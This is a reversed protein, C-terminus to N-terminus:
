VVDEMHENVEEILPFLSSTRFRYDGSENQIHTHPINTRGPAEVPEGTYILNVKLRGGGTRQAGGPM